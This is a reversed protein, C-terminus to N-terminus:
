SGGELFKRSNREQKMTGNRRPAVPGRPWLVSSLLLRHSGAYRYPRWSARLVPRLSESILVRIQRRTFQIATKLPRFLAFVSAPSPRVTGKLSSQDREDLDSSSATHPRERWGAPSVAVQVSVRGLLDAFRGKRNFRSIFEPKKIVELSHVSAGGALYVGGTALVKVALNGVEGALISAFLDITAACLKSRNAPDLAHDLIVFSPDGAAAVQKAM